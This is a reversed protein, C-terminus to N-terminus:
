MVRLQETVTLVNTSPDLKNEAKKELEQQKKIRKAELKQQEKIRKNERKKVFDLYKKMNGVIYKNVTKKKQKQVFADFVDKTPLQSQDPLKNQNQYKKKLDNYKEEDTKVSDLYKKMNAQTYNGKLNRNQIFADFVDKTPLDKMPINQKKSYKKLLREFKKRGSDDKKQKRLLYKRDPNSQIETNKRCGQDQIRQM